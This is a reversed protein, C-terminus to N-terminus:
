DCPRKIFIVVYVCFIRLFVDEGQTPTWAMFRSNSRSFFICAESRTATATPVDMICFPKCSVELPM